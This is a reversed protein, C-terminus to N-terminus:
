RGGRDKTEGGLVRDAVALLPLPLEYGYRRAAELNLVIQYGQMMEIPMRQPDQEDLLIAFALAAARQGLLPYDVVVGAIAADETARLSSSLVPLGKGTLYEAIAASQEYIPFDIPIWLADVDAALVRDLAAQMGFRMDLVVEVVELPEGSREIATSLDKLEAASVFGSDSSRLIALRRMKPVALRFVHLVTEPPIWNSTGTMRVLTSSREVRTGFSKAFGAEVPNTVATFVIPMRGVWGQALFTARTGMTFLLDLKADRCADLQERARREDGDAHHVIFEVPLGRISFARQIGEFAALDNASRHWFFVGVRAVRQPTDPVTAGLLLATLSATITAFLAPLARRRTRELM